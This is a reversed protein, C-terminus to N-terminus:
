LYLDCIFIDFHSQGDLDVSAEGRSWCDDVIIVEYYFSFARAMVMVYLDCLDFLIICCM